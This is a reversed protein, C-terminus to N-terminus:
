QRASRETEVLCERVLIRAHVIGRKIREASSRSGAYTPRIDRGLEEIVNLLQVYKSQAPASTVVVQASVAATPTSAPSSASQINRPNPVTIPPEVIKISNGTKTQEGEM